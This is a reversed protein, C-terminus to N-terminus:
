RMPGPYRLVRAALGRLQSQLVRKAAELDEIESKFTLWVSEAAAQETQHSTALLDPNIKNIELARVVQHLQAALRVAPAIKRATESPGWKGDADASLLWYARGDPGVLAENDCAIAWAVDAAEQFLQDSM